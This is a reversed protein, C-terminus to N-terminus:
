FKLIKYVDIMKLDMGMRDRIHNVYADRGARESM